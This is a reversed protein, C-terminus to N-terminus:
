KERISITPLKFRTCASGYKRQHYENRISDNKTVECMWGLMTMENKELRAEQGIMTALYLMAPRVVTKYIKGTLKVPVRCDCLVGSCTKWNRWSASVRPKVHTM